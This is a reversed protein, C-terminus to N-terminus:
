AFLNINQKIIELKLEATKISGDTTREKKSMKLNCKYCSIIITPVKYKVGDIVLYYDKDRLPHNRAFVHEATCSTPITLKYPTMLGGCFPCNQIKKFLNIRRRRRTRSSM